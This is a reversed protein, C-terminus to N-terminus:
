VVSMQDNLENAILKVSVLTSIGKEQMTIGYLADASEMTGKRHTIIIFQTEKTLKHLYNAFRTVNADDLAAEIEDLLCFPSPKLGQIAFLLAIATFAKEGGSLLVMNQLKKGPPQAVIKVGAELIDEGEVLELTAKGGGFLEKFVVQFQEQIKAFSEAFQKRMAEDLEAIIERLNEKALLLDQRQVSMQEYREKLTKYDDIANVNVIGLEKILGKIESIRKRLTVLSTENESKLEAASSYTLEYEEWMYNIIQENQEVNKEKATTLRFLEKDLNTQKSGLEDRKEFFVKLKSNIEEKEKILTEIIKATNEITERSTDVSSTVNAICQQKVNIDEANSNINVKLKSIEESVKDKERTLRKINEILHGDDAELTSVDIRIKNLVERVKKEEEKDKLILETLEKIKLNAEEQKGKFEGLQESLGSEATNLDKLQDEIQHLEKIIDEKAEAIELIRNEAQKYNMKASNLSLAVEQQELGLKTIREEVGNQEYKLKEISKEYDSLEKTIGTLQEELEEIERKRGLLNNKHRVNGGTIAGGPSFSEGELTVIRLTQNFKRALLIADDVTNTVVVRGVLSEVLNRYKDECEILSSAMGVVGKEKLIADSNANPRSTLSTLPLFTARGLKNTKLHEILQKATAENDTVINQISGGLATEIAIEYKKDVKVIDAVVGIIGPTTTKKNMIQRIADSYGDYHEAVGQKVELTSKIQHFLQQTKNQKNSEEQLKNLIKNIEDQSLQKYEILQNTKKNLFEIEDFYQKKLNEQQEVESRNKLHRQNLETKKINSQERMAEFRQKKSDVSSKQNLYEIINSQNLSAESEKQSIRNVVAELTEEIEDQKNVLDDLKVDLLSKDNIFKAKEINKEEIEKQLEVIRLNYQEVSNKLAAIQENLVKIEGEAKEVAIQDHSFSERIEQLRIELAESKQQYLDHQEKIQEYEKKTTALDYEVIQEKEELATVQEKVRSYEQIFIDIDYQKLEAKYLLYNKAVESQEKLPGVQLEIEGLIDNVRDLNLMSEDLKKEAINKRKKYKVIGAAEDFLERREEPKSNVIQDVQGQGIISYGERGIGTDFFLEQVDKLRCTSGNISYESEGSRYVKRAVTVETFDIALKADSNDITIAVQAFGLPKRNETGSFIVDEMKSGRLQKASQEGLVWRVADAVNSKGSGNPGVIGTIGTNFQLNMKNAFSKFGQIDISKLYM